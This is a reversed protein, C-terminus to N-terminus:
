GQYYAADWKKFAALYEVSNFFDNLKSLMKSPDTARHYKLERFCWARFEKERQNM